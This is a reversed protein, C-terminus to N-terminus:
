AIGAKLDEPIARKISGIAAGGVFSFLRFSCSSTIFFPSSPISLICISPRSSDCRQPPRPGASSCRRLGLCTGYVRQNIGIPHPDCGCCPVACNSARSRRGMRSNAEAQGGGCRRARMPLLLLILCGLRRKKWAEAQLHLM